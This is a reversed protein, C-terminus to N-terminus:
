REEPSIRQRGGGGLLRVPVKFIIRVLEARMEAENLTFSTGLLPLAGQLPGSVAITGSIRDGNKLVLRDSQNPGQGFEVWAIQEPTFTFTGFISSTITFALEDRNQTEISVVQGDPFVLTDFKTVSVLLPNLFGVIQRFFLAPNQPRQGELSLQFLVFRLVDASLTAEGLLTTEANLQEVTLRGTLKEGNKLFLRDLADRLGSEFIIAVLEERSLARTGSSMEITFEETLVTGSLVSGDKLIMLDVTRLSHLFMPLIDRPGFTVATDEQAQLSPLGWPLSLFLTATLFVVLSSKFARTM